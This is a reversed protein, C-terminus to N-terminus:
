FAALAAASLALIGAALQSAGSYSIEFTVPGSEAGNYLWITHKGSDFTIPDGIKAGDYNIGLFSVNDFIVRALYESADIKVACMTGPALAWTQNYYKGSKDQNSEFGPCAIVEAECENSNDVLEGDPFGQKDDRFEGINLKSGKIWKGDGCPRDIYNWADGLCENTQKCYSYTELFGATISQRRCSLCKSLDAAASIAAMAAGTFFQKM